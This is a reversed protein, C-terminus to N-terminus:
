ETFMNKHKINFYIRSVMSRLHREPTNGFSSGIKDGISYNIYSFCEPEKSFELSIDTDEWMNVYMTDFLNGNIGRIYDGSFVGFSSTINFFKNKKTLYRLPWKPYAPVIGIEFRKEIYLQMRKLNGSLYMTAERQKTTLGIGGLYSHYEGPPNTFLTKFQGPDYKGLENKLKSVDDIKIVDDNSLIIWSPRYRLAYELGLNCNRAYNFTGFDKGSEVFIIRLGKFVNEACNTSDKNSHTQTPIVVIVDSDGEVDYIRAEGFPRHKVWDIVDQARSFNSYFEMVESVTKGNFLSELDNSSMNVPECM